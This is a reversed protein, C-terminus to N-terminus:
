AKVGSNRANAKILQISNLLKKKEATLAGETTIEREGDGQFGDFRRSIHQVLAALAFVLNNYCCVCCTQVGEPLHNCKRQRSEGGSKWEEGERLRGVICYEISPSPM